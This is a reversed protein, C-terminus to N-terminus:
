SPKNLQNERLRDWILRPDFSHASLMTLIVMLGFALAAGFGAGVPLCCAAAVYYRICIRFRGPLARRLDSVLQVAHWVVAVSVITAGAVVLWWLTTPVGVFVCLSGAGLLALRWTARRRTGDDDRTKLLAATFHASWVMVAHTMAGLAVLHVLLWTAEPVWRHIVAVTVAAVLWVVLPFDRLPQTGRRM